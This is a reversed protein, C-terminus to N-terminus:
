EESSIYQTQQVKTKRLGPQKKTHPRDLAESIRIHLLAAFMKYLTNLLSIPRYNEFKNDDGKRYILVVLAQQESEEIHEENWWNQM